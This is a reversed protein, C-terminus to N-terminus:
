ESQWRTGKVITLGLVRRQALSRLRATEPGLVTRVGNSRAARWGRVLLGFRGPAIWGGDAAADEVALEVVGASRFFSKWEMLVAPRIGLANVAAADAPQPTSLWSPVLAAVTSMPRAVRALEAVM